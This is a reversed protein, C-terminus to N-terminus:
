RVLSAALNVAAGIIVANFLFSVVGHMIVLRRMAATTTTADSVQFTMGVTFAFYLFEGFDPTANGPFSLGEDRRCHEHAYHVALLVQVFLWSLLVTGVGLLVTSAPAPSPAEALAWVVAALSAVAASLTALLVAWGGDDLAETHARLADHTARLMRPLILAIWLGAAVCWGALVSLPLALWQWHAVVGAALGTLAAGVLRPRHRLPDLRM